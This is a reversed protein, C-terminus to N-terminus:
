RRRLAARRGGAAATDVSSRLEMARRYFPLAAEIKGEEVYRGSWYNAEYLGVSAAEPVLGHAPRTAPGAGEPARRARATLAPAVMPGYLRAVDELEARRVPEGEAARYAIYRDLFLDSPSERRLLPDSRQMFLANEDRFFSRPASYELRQRGVTNLPGPALVAQLRQQSLAYHSLLGALNSIQIRALDNRIAAADYRREMAAFDPELPQMSAIVILDGYDPSRALLVQPFVAAISRLVLEVSADSQEYQQLWFVALGGPNLKDRAYEFFEVTFLGAIGTIWPNSPESIIVDYSRPVARLFSQADDMQVRVRPDQLVQYNFEAFLVDANLVGRSLEVVDVQEIPHRLASGATIGSGYGIVLLTRADPHLFMPLHALLLQTDLDSSTSADPKGNVYLVREGGNDYALVTTNADEEFYFNEVTGERTVYNWKWADFSSAPHRARVAANDEPAPGSILRLHDHAFNLSDLWGGGAVLYVAAAGFAVASALVRRRLAVEGAVLLLALGAIFNLMFNFHFAGLLGLGPLLVLGTLVAGLVNGLTNWAYTTGV